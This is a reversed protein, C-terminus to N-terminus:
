GGLVEWHGNKHAGVRRVIGQTQPNGDADTVETAVSPFLEAKCCEAMIIDRVMDDTNDFYSDFVHPGEWGSGLHKRVKEVEIM